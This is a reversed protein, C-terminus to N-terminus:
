SIAESADRKVKHLPQLRLFVFATALSLALGGLILTYFYNSWEVNSLGKQSLVLIVVFGVLIGTIGWIWGHRMVRNMPLAQFLSPIAFYGALLLHRPTNFSYGYAYKWWLLGAMAWGFATFVHWHPITHNRQKRMLWHQGIATTLGIICFFLAYRIYWNSRNNIHHYLEFPPRYLIFQWLEEFIHILTSGFFYIGIWLLIFARNTFQRRPQPNVEEINDRKRISDERSQGMLYLIILGTGTAQVFTGVILAMFPNFYFRYPYVLSMISIGAAIGHVVSILWSKRNTKWMGISQFFGVISFWLCFDKIFGNLDWGGV